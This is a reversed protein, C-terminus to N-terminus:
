GVVRWDNALMDLQQPHWITLAIPNEGDMEVFYPFRGLGFDLSHLGIRQGVRSARAVRQGRKMCRIADGFDMGHADSAPEPRPDPWPVHPDPTNVACNPVHEVKPGETDSFTIKTMGAGGVVAAQVAEALTRGANEHAQEVPTDTTTAGDVMHALAVADELLQAEKARVQMRAEAVTMGRTREKVFLVGPADNKIVDSEGPLGPPLKIPKKTM